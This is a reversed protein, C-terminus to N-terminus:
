NNPIKIVYVNTKMESNVKRKRTNRDKEHDLYGNKKLEKLVVKEDEFGGEKIIKEFQMPVIELETYDKKNTLRGVYDNTTIKELGHKFKSPNSSIYEKLYDIISKDFNRNKISTKEANVLINVIEKKNLKIGLMEEFLIATALIIAFKNIRRNSFEDIVNKNKFIQKIKVICKEYINKIEDKGKEMVFQAFEIGIHGYNNMIIQNIREANKADKTWVLDDIELVRVQIGANKNASKVLSKEGNSLVTTLWSETKRIELNKNLRDKDTGNTIRYIVETFNDIKSMSLEDFAIPVGNIGSIKRILANDTSNYTTFLGRKKVDPYGFMSIALKMATSKGITSNGSIHVIQTDLALEEGIYAVLVASLSMVSMLELPSHGLVEQNFMNIWNERTGKPELELDGKYISKCGICEYLKYIEKDEYKDFGLKSHSYLKPATIEEDRLYMSIYQANNSMVDMGVAQYRLLKSPTLYEERKIDISRMIGMDDYDITGVKENTEIDTKITSIGIERCIKLQQNGDIIYIGDNGRQIHEYIRM